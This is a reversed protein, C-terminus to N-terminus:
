YEEYCEGKFRNPCYSSIYMDITDNDTKGGKYKDRLLFCYRRAVKLQNLDNCSDIVKTIRQIVDQYKLNKNTLENNM